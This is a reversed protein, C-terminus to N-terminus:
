GFVGQPFRAASVCVGGQVTMGVLGDAFSAAAAQQGIGSFELAPGSADTEADQIRVGADDVQM